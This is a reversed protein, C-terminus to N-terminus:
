GLYPCPCPHPTPSAAMGPAVHPSCCGGPGEHQVGWPHGTRSSSCGKCWSPAALATCSCWGVHTGPEWGLAM